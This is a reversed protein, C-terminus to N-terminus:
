HSNPFDTRSHVLDPPWGNILYTRPMPTELPRVNCWKSIDIPSQIAFIRVQVPFSLWFENSIEAQATRNTGPQGASNGHNYSLQTGWAVPNLLQQRKRLDWCDGHPPFTPFACRKGLRSGRWRKWGQM